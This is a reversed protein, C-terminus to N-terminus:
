LTERNRKTECSKESLLPTLNFAFVVSVPLLIDKVTGQNVEEVPDVKKCRKGSLYNDLELSDLRRRRCEKM